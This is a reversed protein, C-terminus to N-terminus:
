SLCGLNWDVADIYTYSSMILSNSMGANFIEACLVCRLNLCFEGRRLTRRYSLFLCKKVNIDHSRSRQNHGQGEFEVLISDLHVLM